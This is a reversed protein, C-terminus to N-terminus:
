GLNRGATVRARGTVRWGGETKQTQISFLEGHELYAQALAADESGAYVADAAYEVAVGAIVPQTGNEAVVDGKAVRDGVAVCARGAIVTLSYVVGDAPALLPGEEPPLAEEELEICVTLVSGEHSLSCFGVRPLRLMQAVFLAENAPPLSFFGTGQEKLLAVAEAGYCAGSGVVEIRLVRSECFLVAAVFLAAGAILGASRRALAYLRQAGYPTCKKINYCSGRLIAFVKKRQKADVRVRVGKKQVSAGLVTVGGQVLKEVARAAGIGEIDLECGRM